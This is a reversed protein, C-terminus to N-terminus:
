GYVTAENQTLVRSQQTLLAEYLASTALGQLHYSMKIKPNLPRM